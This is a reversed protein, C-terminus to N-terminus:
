WCVSLLRRKINLGQIEALLATVSESSKSTGGDLLAQIKLGVQEQQDELPKSLLLYFNQLETQLLLWRETRWNEKWFEFQLWEARKLWLEMYEESFIGSKKSEILKKLIDGFPKVKTIEQSIFTDLHTM